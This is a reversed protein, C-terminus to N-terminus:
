LESVEAHREAVCALTWREAVAVVKNVLAPDGDTLEIKVQQVSGESEGSIEHREERVITVSGVEPILERALDDIEAPTAERGAFMGFNIRVELPPSDPSTAFAVVHDLEQM